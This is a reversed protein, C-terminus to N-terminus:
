KNTSIFSRRRMVPAYRQQSFLSKPRLLLPVTGATLQFTDQKKNKADDPFFEAANEAFTLGM